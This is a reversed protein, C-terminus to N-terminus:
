GAEGPVLADVNHCDLRAGGDGALTEDGRHLLGARVAGERGAFRGFGLQADDEILRGLADLADFLVARDHGLRLPAALRAPAVLSSSSHLLGCGRSRGAPDPVDHLAVRGFGQHVNGLERREDFTEVVRLSNGASRPALEVRAALGTLDVADIKSGAGDRLQACGATEGEAKAEVGVVVDVGAVQGPVGDDAHGRAALRGDVGVARRVPLQDRGVVWDEVGLAVEVDGIRAGSIAVVAAEEQ